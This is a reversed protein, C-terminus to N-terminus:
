KKILQIIDKFTIVAMFLLLIIIGVTHIIGEIKQPVKKRTVLEILMFVIRGGDLAPFPLLNVVGLNMAILVFYFWVTGDQHRAAESIVGTVGVPGSLDKLGYEGVILDHLSDWVMRIMLRSQCFSHGIFTFLNANDLDKETYFNFDRVGFTHGAETTTGFSVTLTTKEGNRVVTVNTPEKGYRSIAYIVDQATFTNQDGIRTIKDGVELSESSIANAAFGSVTTSTLTTNATIIAMVLFGLLINSVSGAATIIIRQWVPKKGFAGDDESEADEGEMSVFGGIPLLRLSYSTGTKESKKSILKPGMGISFENIKVKFLRATLYHGLEHIFILIGFLLIALLVYGM